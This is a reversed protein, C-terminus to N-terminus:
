APDRGFKSFKMVGWLLQHLWQECGFICVHVSTEDTTNEPVLYLHCFNDMGAFLAFTTWGLLSPVHQGNWCLQCFSDM